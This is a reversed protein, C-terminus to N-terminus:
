HEGDVDYFVRLEGVRLQWIPPVADFPPELGVLRKRRRTQVNPRRSLHEEIADLVATQDVTRLTRLDDQVSEAFRIEYM